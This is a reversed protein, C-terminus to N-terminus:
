STSCSGCLDAGGRHAWDQHGMEDMNFVFHSPVRDIAEIARRFLELIEGETVETRKDEM